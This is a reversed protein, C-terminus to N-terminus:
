AKSAGVVNYGILYFRGDEYEETGVADREYDAFNEKIKTALEKRQKLSIVYRPGYNRGHGDFTESLQTGEQRDYNALLANKTSMLRALTEDRGVNAVPTWRFAIVPERPAEVISRAGESPWPFVSKLNSKNEDRQVYFRGNIRFALEATNFNQDLELGGRMKRSTRKKTSRKRTSRMPAM